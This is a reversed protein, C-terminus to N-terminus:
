AAEKLTYCCLYGPTVIRPPHKNGQRFLMTGILKPPKPVMQIVIKTSGHLDTFIHLVQYVIEYDHKTMRSWRQGKKLKTIIEVMNKKRSSIQLIIIINMM